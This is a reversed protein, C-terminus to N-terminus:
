TDVPFSHRDDPKEGGLLKGMAFGAGGFLIIGAVILIMIGSAPYQDYRVSVNQATVVGDSVAEIRAVGAKSPTWEFSVGDVHMTVTEPVASNPRWIINVTDAPSPLTVQVPRNVIPSEPAEEEAPSPIPEFSIQAIAPSIGVLSVLLIAFIRLM